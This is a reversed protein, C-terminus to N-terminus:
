LPGTLDDDLSGIAGMVGALLSVADNGSIPAHVLDGHHVDQRRCPAKKRLVLTMSDIPSTELILSQISDKILPNHSQSRLTESRESCLWDTRRIGASSIM